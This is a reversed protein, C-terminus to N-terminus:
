ILVSESSHVRYSNNRVGGATNIDCKSCERDRGDKILESVGVEIYTPTGIEVETPTSEGM